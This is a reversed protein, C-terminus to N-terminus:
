LEKRVYKKGYSLSQLDRSADFDEMSLVQAGVCRRLLRGESQEAQADGETRQGQQVDGWSVVGELALVFHVHCGKRHIM